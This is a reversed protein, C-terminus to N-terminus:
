CPQRALSGQIEVEVLILIRTLDKTGLPRRSPGMDFIDLMSTKTARLYLSRYQNFYHVLVFSANERLM